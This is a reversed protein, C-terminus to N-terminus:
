LEKVARWYSPTELREFGMREYVRIAPQNVADLFLPMAGHNQQHEYIVRELLRTCYGKRRYGLDTMVNTVFGCGYGYVVSLYGCLAGDGARIGYSETHPRGPDPLWRPAFCLLEATLATQRSVDGDGPGERLGGRYVFGTPGFHEIVYGEATLVPLLWDEEGEVFGAYIRPSMRRAAYFRELDLLADKVDCRPNLIVGHNSSYDQAQAPSRYLMGYERWFADAFLSPGFRKFNYYLSQPFM